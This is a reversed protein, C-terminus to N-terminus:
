KLKDISLYLNIFQNELTNHTIKSDETKFKKVIGTVHHM